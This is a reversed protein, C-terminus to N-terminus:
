SGAKTCTSTSSTVHSSPEDDSDSDRTDLSCDHVFDHTHQKDNVALQKLCSSCIFECNILLGNPLQQKVAEAYAIESSSATPNSLPAILQEYLAMIGSAQIERQHDVVRHLFNLGHEAECIACTYFVM